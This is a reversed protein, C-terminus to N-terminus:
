GRSQALCRMECRSVLFNPSPTSRGGPPANWRTATRTVQASLEAPPYQRLLMGLRKRAALELQYGQKSQLGRSDALATAATAASRPRWASPELKEVLVRLLRARLEQRPQRGHAQLKQERQLLALRKFAAALHFDDLEGPHATVMAALHPVSPAHRFPYMSRGGARSTPSRQQESTPNAADGQVDSAAPLVAQCVTGVSDNGARGSAMGHAHHSSVRGVRALGRVMRAVDVGWVGGGVSWVRGVHHPPQGWGHHSARAAQALLTCGRRRM